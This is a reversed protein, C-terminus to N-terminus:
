YSRVRLMRQKGPAACFRFRQKEFADQLNNAELHALRSFVAQLAGPTHLVDRDHRGSLVVAWPVCLCFSYFRLYAMTHSQGLVVPPVCALIGPMRSWFLDWSHKGLCDWSQCGKIEDLVIIRVWCVSYSPGAWPDMRMTVFLHRFFM